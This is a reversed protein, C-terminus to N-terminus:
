ASDSSQMKSANHVLIGSALKAYTHTTSQTDARELRGLAEIDHTRMNAHTSVQLVGRPVSMPTCFETLSAVPINPICANLYTNSAGTSARCRGDEQATAPASWMYSTFGESTFSTTM